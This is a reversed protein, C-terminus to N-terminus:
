RPKESRRMTLFLEDLARQAARGAELAADNKRREELREASKLRETEVSWNTRALEADARAREYAAAAEALLELSRIGQLELVRLEQATLVPPLGPREEYQERRVEAEALARRGETQAAALERRAQKERISRLKILSPLANRKKM